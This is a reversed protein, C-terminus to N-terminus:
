GVGDEDGGDDECDGGERAAGDDGEEAAEEEEDSEADGVGEEGIEGVFAPADEEVGEAGVGEGLDGFVPGDGVLVVEGDCELAVQEEVTEDPDGDSEGDEGEGVEAEAEGFAGADADVKAEPAAGFEGFVRISGHVCGHCERGREACGAAEGLECSGDFGFEEPEDFRRDEDDDRHGRQEVGDRREGVIGGFAVAVAGVRDSVPHKLDDGARHVHEQDRDDGEEGAVEDPFLAVRVHVFDM